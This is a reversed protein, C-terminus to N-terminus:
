KDGRILRYIANMMTLMARNRNWKRNVNRMQEEIVKTQNMYTLGIYSLGVPKKTTGGEPGAVGTVSICLNSGTKKALGESMEKATEKSVAGYKDLTESLVGLEEMKARNSYTVIGRDFVRSIGPVDILTSAFLGGTCSEACSISINNEILLKGVVTPLNEGEISYIYEGILNYIEPLKDDVLKQAAVLDISKAAVRLFSEGEKAYTAYTPNTQGNILPLMTTELQSEGIGFTRIDRFFLVSDARDELFSKVRRQYMAKMERPPGPMCIAIKGDTELAFGPATGQDNDFVKARSPMNAQKYNNETVPKNMKRFMKKLNKLSEQHVVLKDGHVECVIEKTLDDQTPGLGGTTIILDCDRYALKILKKLREPNDGVTYHYLVDVGLLNLEQSLYVVNTNATQGMLLETGVSLLVTKM